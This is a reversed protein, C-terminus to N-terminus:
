QLKKRAHMNRRSLKSKEPQLRRRLEAEYDLEEKRQKEQKQDEEAKMHSKLEYMFEEFPRLSAKTQDTWDNIVDDSEDMETLLEYYQMEHFLGYIECAKVKLLGHQREIQDNKGTSLTERTTKNVYSLKKM